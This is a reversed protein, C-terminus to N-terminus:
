LEPREGIEREALDLTKDVCAQIAEQTKGADAIWVTCRDITAGRVEWPKGDSTPRYVAKIELYCPRVAGARTTRIRQPPHTDSWRCTSAQLAPALSLTLLIAAAARYLTFAHVPRGLHSKLATPGLLALDGGILRMIEESLWAADYAAASPSADLDLSVTRLMSYLTGPDM